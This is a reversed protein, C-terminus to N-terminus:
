KPPQGEICVMQGFSLVPILAPYKALLPREEERFDATAAAMGRDRGEEMMEQDGTYEGTTMMGASAVVGALKLWANSERADALAAFAARSPPDLNIANLRTLVGDNVAQQVIAQASAAAQVPTESYSQRYLVVMEAGREVVLVHDCVQGDHICTEAGYAAGGEVPVRQDLTFDIGIGFSVNVAPRGVVTGRTVEGTTGNAENLCVLPKRQPSSLKLDTMGVSRSSVCAPAFLLLVGLAHKM